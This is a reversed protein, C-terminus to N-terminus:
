SLVNNLFSFTIKSFVVVFLHFLIQIIFSHKINLIFNLNLWIRNVIIRYKVTLLLFRVNLLFFLRKDVGIRSFNFNWTSVDFIDLYIHFIRLKLKLKQIQLNWFIKSLVCLTVPKMALNLIPFLILEEIQHFISYNQHKVFHYLIFLNRSLVM